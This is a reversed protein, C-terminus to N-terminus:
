LAASSPSSGCRDSGVVGLCCLGRVRNRAPNTSHLARLVRTARRRRAISRFGAIMPQNEAPNTPHQRGVAGAWQRGVSARDHYALLTTAPSAPKEGFQSECLQAAVYHETAGLPLEASRVSRAVLTTLSTAHASVECGREADVSDADDDVVVVCCWAGVGDVASVKATGVVM